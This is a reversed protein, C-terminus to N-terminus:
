LIIAFTLMIRNWVSATDINGYFFSCLHLVHFGLISNVLFFTFILLFSITVSITTVSVPLVIVIPDNTWGIDFDLKIIYNLRNFLWQTAKVLSIRMPWTLWVRRHKAIDIEVCRLFNWVLIFFLRQWVQCEIADKAISEFKISSYKRDTVRM